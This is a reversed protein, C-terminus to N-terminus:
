ILLLLWLSSNPLLLFLTNQLLHNPRWHTRIEVDSLWVPIVHLSLSLQYDLDVSSSHWIRWSATHLHVQSFQHQSEFAFPPWLLYQTLKTKEKWQVCNLTLHFISKILYWFQEYFYKQFHQLKVTFGKCLVMFVQWINDITMELLWHSQRKWQLIGSFDLGVLQKEAEICSM